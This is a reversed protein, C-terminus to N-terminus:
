LSLFILHSFFFYTLAKCNYNFHVFKALMLSGSDFAPYQFDKQKKSSRADIETSHAIWKGHRELESKPKTCMGLM